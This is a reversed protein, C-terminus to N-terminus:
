YQPCFRGEKAQLLTFSFRNQCHPPACIAAGVARALRVLLSVALNTKTLQNPPYKASGTVIRLVLDALPELMIVDAFLGFVLDADV